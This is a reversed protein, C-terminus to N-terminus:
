SAIMWCSWFAQWSKERQQSQLEARQEAQSHATCSERDLSHYTRHIAGLCAAVAEFTPCWFFTDLFRNIVITNIYVFVVLQQNQLGRRREGEEGGGGGGGGGRWRTLPEVSKLILLTLMLSQQPIGHTRFFPVLAEMVMSNVELLFKVSIDWFSHPSSLPVQTLRGPRGVSKQLDVVQGMTAPFAEVAFIVSGIKLM